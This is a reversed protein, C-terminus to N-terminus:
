RDLDVVRLPLRGEGPVATEDVSVLVQDPSLDGHILVHPEGDRLVGRLRASLREIHAARRPVRDCVPGATRPLRPGLRAEPRPGAAASMSQPHSALAALDGDGWQRGVLVAARGRWRRQDLTPLDLERWQTTVQLLPDLSRAAVRLVEGTGPLLLVAHRGPNYS